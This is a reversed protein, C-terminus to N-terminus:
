EGCFWVDSEKESGDLFFEGRRREKEAIHCNPMMLFFFNSKLKSSLVWDIVNLFFGKWIREHLWSNLHFDIFNHYLPSLSIFNSISYRTVYPHHPLTSWTPTLCFKLFKFFYLCFYFNSFIDFFIQDVKVLMELFAFNIKRLKGWRM